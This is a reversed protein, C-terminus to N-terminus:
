TGGMATAMKIANGNEDDKSMLMAMTLTVRRGDRICQWGDMNRNTLKNAKMQHPKDQKMEGKRM